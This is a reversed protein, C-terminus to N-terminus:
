RGLHAREWGWYVMAYGMDMNTDLLRIHITKTQWKPWEQKACNAMNPMTVDGGGEDRKRMNYIM